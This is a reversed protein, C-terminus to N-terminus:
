FGAWLSMVGLAAAGTVTSEAEAWGLLRRAQSPLSLRGQFAFANAASNLTPDITPAILGYFVAATSVGVAAAAVSGALSKGRRVRPTYRGWLRGFTSAATDCWSLLLIALTGVDKPFLRLATFAGLLYWIVGNWGDVESERMLAGLCRIYFRNFRPSHHRLLDTASIPILLTLLVPHISSPQTGRRYLYLALFGISVHLIKRPIEHRHIFSMWEQHIPILGLPSPSRSLERWYNRNASSPSLHGDAKGNGSGNTQVPEPKRRRPKSAAASPMGAKPHIAALGSMRRRRSSGDLLPSRSRARARKMDPDSSSSDHEPGEDIPVTSAATVRAKSRTNHAFYGDRQSNESPTPSPSIVRPTGPVQYQQSSAMAQRWCTAFAPFSPSRILGSVSSRARSCFDLLLNLFDGDRDPDSPLRSTHSSTNRPSVNLGDSQGNESFLVRSGRRSTPMNHPMAFDQAYTTSTASPAAISSRPTMSGTELLGGIDFFNVETRTSTRTVQDELVPMRLGADDDSDRGSSEGVALSRRRQDIATNHHLRPSAPLAVMAPRPVSPTECPDPGPRYGMGRFLDEDSGWQRAVLTSRRTSNSPGDMSDAVSGFKFKPKKIGRDRVFAGLVLANSVAAAALIESSAWVTRYQQRGHREIVKPVRFATIFILIASLAFLVVLSMKQKLRMSSRLIIPIPFAILLIDTIIDATGMTILQAFGQRCQPGPDPVVQWYHDFPQCESLTAIVVALFTLILFVRIAHLTMEYSRRWVSSTLRKLFESVTFKATWIFLAYFIRSALVLRAGIARHQIQIDTAGDMIANNTGYLLVVHVLAM